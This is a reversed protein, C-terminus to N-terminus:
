RTEYWRLTRIKGATTFAQCEIKNKNEAINCDTTSPAINKLESAGGLASGLIGAGLAVSQPSTETIPNGDAGNFRGSCSGSPLCFRYLYSDGAVGAGCGGGIGKGDRHFVNAYLISDVAYISNMGKYVGAATGYTYSWGEKNTPAVGASYNNNDLIDLNVNKTKLRSAGSDPLAAYLDTRAVDKDFVVFVGDNASTSASSNNKGVVGALPSSRNGSSLAVVGYLGLSSDRHVSFSPMEYFRPSAGGAHRSTLLVVRTAFNTKQSELKVAANDGTGTAANNLDVRFAQGGLDGFYLNDVLGDNDRDIANIQSVVSYKMDTSTTYAEAGDKTTANAGTWWLLKGNNADFMYVGNGKTATTPNYDPAEYGEDYGGGVFMVLKKKGGFNVYALTPKSWSDGMYSLAGVNSHEGAAVDNNDADKYAGYHITQNAPDIHFKLAPSSINSLDLAYYSQGGMRLGGYVWQKGTLKNRETSSYDSQGVTLSGNKNNVYETYAAWPADIGYFLNGPGSKSEELLAKPQREMMEHPAFAFVEKGSESDVVHLLGQTTGFLLYDKRNTTTLDSAITGSQTLLIPTSHMTAGVQRLNATATLYTAALNPDVATVSTDVDYGLLNLWYRQKPDTSLYASEKTVQALSNGESAVGGNIVRNTLVNRVFQTQESNAGLELTGKFGNILNSSWLGAVTSDFSGDNKFISSIKDSGKLNGNVVHYKNMNGVWLSQSPKPDFSTYYGYPQVRLPNLADQPITPSGTVVPDIVVKTKEVFDIISDRIGDSDEAYYFGGDGYDKSGWLCANYADKNSDKVAECNYTGDTNQPIGAFSSGFGVVATKINMDKPNKQTNSIETRNRLKKAYEGIYEWGGTEGSFLGSQLAPSVLVGTGSPKSSFGYTGAPSDTALTTTLTDNMIARAMNDKTSNPAGDTLFYIGNGDCTNNLSGGAIYYQTGDLNTKKTDTASYSIGGSLNDTYSNATETLAFPNTRYTVLNRYMVLNQDWAAAAVPEIDMAEADVKMWGGYRWGSPFKSYLDWDDSLNGMKATLDAQTAATWGGSGNPKYVGASVTTASVNTGTRAPWNNICQKVNSSGGLANTKGTGLVVCIFYSQDNLDNAASNNTNNRRRIISAGDYVYQVYGTTLTNTRTQTGMMYAAAEAYAHATPTGSSAKKIGQPPNTSSYRQSSNSGDKVAGTGDQQTTTDLSQFQAIAQALKLRQANTLADAPVLINGSHGDVFPINSSSSGVKLSTQTSYHGLGIKISDSLEASALLTLIADKLRSLRDFKGAPTEVLKGTSDVTATGCGRVYYPVKTGNIVVEKYFSSKNKTPNTTSVGNVNVTNRTDIANYQYELINGAKNGGSEYVNTSSCLSSDVDGPSGWKNDRPLVLSSIGMSGSTDLMLLISTTGGTGSKYIEIDSAQTAVSQCVAVTMAMSVATSLLKKPHLINM